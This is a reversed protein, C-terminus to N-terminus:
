LPIMTTNVVEINGKDINQIDPIGLETRIFLIIGWISFAIFLGLLGLIMMKKGQGAEKENGASAKIYKSVGFFFYFLCLAFGLPILIGNIIGYASDILDTLKM